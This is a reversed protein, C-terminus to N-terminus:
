LFLFIWKIICLCRKWLVFFRSSFYIFTFYIALQFKLIACRSLFICVKKLSERGVPRKGWSGARRKRVIYMKVIQMNIYFVIFAFQLQKYLNIFSNFYCIGSINGDLISQVVRIDSIKRFNHTPHRRASLWFFSYETETGTDAHLWSQHNGSGRDAIAVFVAGKSGRWSTCILAAKLISFNTRFFQGPVCKGESLPHLSTAQHRGRLGKTYAPTLLSIKLSWYVWVNCFCLCFYGHKHIFDSLENQINLWLTWFTKHSTEKLTPKDGHCNRFM